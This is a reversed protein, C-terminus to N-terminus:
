EYNVEQQRECMIHKYKEKLRKQHDKLQNNTFHDTNWFDNSYEDTNKWDINKYKEPNKAYIACGPYPCLITFGVFDPKIEDILSETLSIDEETENPMGLIFFGRRYIGIDKAWKFARKLIVTNVGKGVDKLIKDSGSECGINIQNCGSKKMWYFMEETAFSAHILAEWKTDIGYEIKKKCFEIVYDASNDFTADVFKFYDLNYEKSVYLIEKCLDDIDRRRIPNTKSNFKGTMIKESCFFCSVPCGRSAQFSATRKGNISQCLAITRENKIAKRDPFALEEFNMKRGLVVKDRNGNLIDLIAAEGEGVVVQDVGDILAERNVSTTHWGGFVSIVKKNKLKIQRSLNVGHSFCPSTCSIFIFDSDLSGNIIEEDTDFNAHFFNIDIEKKYEKKVYSILYAFGLCEWTNHYYPQIFTIKM